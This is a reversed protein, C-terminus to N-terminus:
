SEGAAVSIEISPLKALFHVLRGLMVHVLLRRLAGPFAEPRREPRTRVIGGPLIASLRKIRYVAPRHGNLDVDHGQFMWFFCVLADNLAANICAWLMSMQARSSTGLEADNVIGNEILVAKFM